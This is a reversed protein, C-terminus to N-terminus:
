FDRAYTPGGKKHLMCSGVEGRWPMLKYLLVKAAPIGTIAALDKDFSSEALWLERWRTEYSIVRWNELRNVGM